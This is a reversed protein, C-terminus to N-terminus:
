NTQIPLGQIVRLVLASPIAFAQVKGPTRTHGGYMGVVRGAANLLPAGSAGNTVINPNEFECILWRNGNETVRAPHAIQGAPVGGRVAAIVWITEGIAPKESAIEAAESPFAGTAKFVALDFLPAKEDASPPVSLGQVRYEKSGTGSLYRLKITSVFGPVKEPSVLAQFGGSPGLLHRVTLIFVDPVLNTRALFATGASRRGATTYFEPGGVFTASFTPEPIPQRQTQGHLSLLPLAVALLLAQPKM